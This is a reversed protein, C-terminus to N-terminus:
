KTQKTTKLLWRKKKRIKLEYITKIVGKPFAQVDKDGDNCIDHAVKISDKTEEIFIGVSKVPMTDFKLFEESSRWRDDGHVDVWELLIFDGAKLNTFM